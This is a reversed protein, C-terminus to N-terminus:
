IEMVCIWGKVNAAGSVYIEVPEDTDGTPATCGILNMATAGKAPLGAIVNGSNAFRLECTVDADCYFNWALIRLAKGSAPVVINSSGGASFARAFHVVIGERSIQRDKEAQYVIPKRLMEIGTVKLTNGDTENFIVIGRIPKNSSPEVVADYWVNEYDVTYFNHEASGDTFVVSVRMQGGVVSCMYRVRIRATSGLIPPVYQQIGGALVPIVCVYGQYLPDYEVYEEGSLVYWGSLDGTGFSGNRILNPVVRADHIVNIRNITDITNIQDILDIVVNHGNQPNIKSITDVTGVSNVTGLTGISNITNIQNILGVYDLVTNYETSDITKPNIKQITGVTNITDLTGLNTINDIQQIKKILDLVTNYETSDITQPNIKQITGVTNLTGLTGVAAISNITEITHITNIEDILDILDIKKGRLWFDPWGETMKNM